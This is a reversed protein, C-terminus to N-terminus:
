WILYLIGSGDPGIVPALLRALLYLWAGGLMKGHSKKADYETVTMTLNNSYDYHLLRGLYNCNNLISM